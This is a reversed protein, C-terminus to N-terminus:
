WKVIYTEFSAIDLFFGNYISKGILNCTSIVFLLKFSALFVINWEWM